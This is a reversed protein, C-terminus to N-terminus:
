NETPKREVHDIVLVNVPVQNTERKELKLGLQRQLADFVSLGTLPPDAPATGEGDARPPAPITKNLDVKKTFSLTFDYAGELGTADIVPDPVYGGAINKL